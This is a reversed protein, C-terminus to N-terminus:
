GRVAEARVPIYSHSPVTFLYLSLFFFSLSFCFCFCIYFFCMNVQEYAATANEPDDLNALAALLM